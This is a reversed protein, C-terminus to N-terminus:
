DLRQSDPLPSSTDSLSGPKPYPCGANELGEPPHVYIVLTCPLDGPYRVIGVKAYKSGPPFRPVSPFGKERLTPYRLKNRLQGLLNLADQSFRAAVQQKDAYKGVAQGRPFGFDGNSNYQVSDTRFQFYVQKGNSYRETGYRDSLPAVVEVSFLTKWESCWIEWEAHLDQGNVPDRGQEDPENGCEDTTEQFEPGGNGIDSGSQACAPNTPTQQCNLPGGQYIHSCLGDAGCLWLYCNETVQGGCRPLWAGPAPQLWASPPLSPRPTGGYANSNSSGSNSAFVEGGARAACDAGAKIIPNAIAAERNFATSDNQTYYRSEQVVYPEAQQYQRVCPLYQAASHSGRALLANFQQVDASFRVQAAQSAGANGWMTSLQHYMDLVISQVQVGSMGNQQTSGQLMGSQAIARLPMQTLISVAAVAVVIRSVEIPKM